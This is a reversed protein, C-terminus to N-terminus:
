LIEALDPDTEMERMWSGLFDATEHSVAIEVLVMGELLRQWGIADQSRALASFRSLRGFCITEMSELVREHVFESLIEALHPETEMKGMFSDLCDTTAHFAEVRGAEHFHLIHETTEVEM